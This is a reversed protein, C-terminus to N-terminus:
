IIRWDTGVSILIYTSKPRSFSLTTGFVTGGSTLVSFASSDEKHLGILKGSNGAPSPLLMTVNGGSVDINMFDGVAVTANSTVSRVNFTVAGILSADGSGLLSIGNVTKLNTGSILRDQKPDVGAAISNGNYTATLLGGVLAAQLDDSRSIEDLSVGLSLLDTVSLAALSNSLGLDRLFVPTGGVTVVYTNAM